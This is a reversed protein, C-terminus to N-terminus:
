EESCEAVLGQRQQLRCRLRLAPVRLPGRQPDRIIANLLAHAEAFADEDGALKALEFRASNALESASHMRVIERLPRRISQMRGRSMALEAEAYLEDATKRAKEEPAPLVVVGADGEAAGIDDHRRAVGGGRRSKKAARLTPQPRPVSKFVPLPLAPVHVEHKSESTTKPSADRWQKHMTSLQGVTSPELELEEYSAIVVGHESSGAFVPNLVNTFTGAIEVRLPPADHNREAVFVGKILRLSLGESPTDNFRIEGPGALTITVNGEALVRHVIENNGARITTAVNPDPETLQPLIEDRAVMHSKASVHHRRVDAFGFLLAIAVVAGVMAAAGFKLVVGLHNAAVVPPNAASAELKGLVRLRALDDLPESGVDIAMVIEKIVDHNTMVVGM